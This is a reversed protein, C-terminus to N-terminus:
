LAARRAASRRSRRRSIARVLQDGAWLFGQCALWLIGFGILAMVAGMFGAQVALLSADYTTV